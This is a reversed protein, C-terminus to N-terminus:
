NQVAKDKRARIKRPRAKTRTDANDKEKELARALIKQWEEESTPPLGNAILYPDFIKIEAERRANAAEELTDYTGLCTTKGKFTIRAAYRGSPRRLIGRIGLTTDARPKPSLFSDARSHEKVVAKNRNNGSERRNEEEGCGCSKTNGRTLDHGPVETANGCDCQCRWIVNGDSTRRSTAEKVVLRGFRMGALDKIPM